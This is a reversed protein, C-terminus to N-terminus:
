APKAEVCAPAPAATPVSLKRYDLFAVVVLIITWVGWFTFAASIEFLFLAIVRNILSIAIVILAGRKQKKLLDFMAVAYVIAVLILVAAGIALTAGADNLVSYIYGGHTAIGGMSGPVISGQFTPDIYWVAVNGIDGIINILLFFILLTNIRNKGFTQIGM